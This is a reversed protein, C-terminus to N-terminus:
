YSGCKSKLVEQFEQTTQCKWHHSLKQSKLGKQGSNSSMDQNDRTTFSQTHHDTNGETRHGSINQSLLVTLTHLKKLCYMISIQSHHLLLSQHSKCQLSASFQEPLSIDAWTGIALAQCAVASLPLYDWTGGSNPLRQSPGQKCVQAGAIWRNIECAQLKKWRIMMRYNGGRFYETM